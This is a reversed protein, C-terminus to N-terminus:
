DQSRPYITERRHTKTEGSLWSFIYVIGLARRIQCMIVKSIPHHGSVLDLFLMCTAPVTRIYM